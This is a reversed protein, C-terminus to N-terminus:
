EGLIEKIERIAVDPNIDTRKHCWKRLETLQKITLKM